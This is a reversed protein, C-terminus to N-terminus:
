QESICEVLPAVDFVNNIPIFTESEDTLEVQNIYDFQNILINIHWTIKNNQEDTLMNIEEDTAANAIADFEEVTTTNMLRTYLDTEPSEVEEIVPEEVVTDDTVTEDTVTEDTVTEDTVTEDTVTEDTTTEDVTNTDVTNEETGADEAVANITPVATCLLGFCLLTTIVKVEKRLKLKKM